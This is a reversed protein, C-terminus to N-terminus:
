IYHGMHSRMMDQLAVIVADTISRFTVKVCFVNLSCYEFKKVNMLIRVQNEDGPCSSHTEAALKAFAKMSLKKETWMEMCYM